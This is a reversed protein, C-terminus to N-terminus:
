FIVYKLCCIRGRPVGKVAPESPNVVTHPYWPLTRRYSPVISSDKAWEGDAVNSAVIPIGTLTVHLFLMSTGCNRGISGVRWQAFGLLMGWGSGGNGKYGGPM